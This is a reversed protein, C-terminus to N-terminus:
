RQWAATNRVVEDILAWLRRLEDESRVIAKVNYASLAVYFRRQPSYVFAQIRVKEPLLDAVPTAPRKAHRGRPLQTQPM